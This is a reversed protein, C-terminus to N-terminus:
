LWEKELDDAFDRNFLAVVSRVVNYLVQIAYTGLCICEVWIFPYVSINLVSSTLAKASSFMAQAGAAYCILVVTGLSLLGTFLYCVFKVKQPFRLLLMTLSVHGHISECYAFSAFVAILLVYQIIEYSGIIPTNFAFRLIVDAVTLIVIFFYGIYSVASVGSMVKVLITGLKNLGKM